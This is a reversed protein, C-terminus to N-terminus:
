IKRMDGEAQTANNACVFILFFLNFDNFYM